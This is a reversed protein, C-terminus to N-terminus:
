KNSNTDNTKKELKEDSKRTEKRRRLNTKLAESLNQANKKPKPKM